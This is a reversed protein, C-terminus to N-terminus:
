KMEVLIARASKRTSCESVAPVDLRSAEFAQTSFLSLVAVSCRLFMHLVPFIPPHPKLRFRFARVGGVTGPSRANM